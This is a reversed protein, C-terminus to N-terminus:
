DPKQSGPLRVMAFAVHNGTKKLEDQLDPQQEAPVAKYRRAETIFSIFLEKPDKNLAKGLVTMLSQVAAMLAVTADALDPASMAWELVQPILVLVERDPGDVMIADAFKKREAM